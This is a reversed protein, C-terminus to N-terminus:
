KKKGKAPAKPAAAKKPVEHCVEAFLGYRRQTIRAALDPPPPAFRDPRTVPGFAKAGRELAAEHTSRLEADLDKGKFLAACAASDTFFYDHRETVLDTIIAALYERARAPTLPTLLRTHTAPKAPGNKYVLYVAFDQAPAHGAAALVAHTLFGRLYNEPCQVWNGASLYLTADFAANVPDTEGVLEVQLPGAPAAITFTLPPLGRAAGTAAAGFIVPAWGDSAVGLNAFQRRWDNQIAAHARRTAEAFIGTPMVGQLEMRDYRAEYAATAAADDLPGAWFSARLLAARHLAEPTLVEDRQAFPDGADDEDLRLIVKAWGQVPSELFTRLASLSLRLTPRAQGTETPAAPLCLLKALAPWAAADTGERLARIREAGGWYPPLPTLAGLLEERLRAVQAEGRAADHLPGPQAHRRLPVTTHLAAYQEESLYNRTLISRLEAVLSSPAREDGTLGDRCVWSIRLAERAALLGELFAYKDRERTSVDGAMRQVRRLDLPDNGDAGPFVSESLGLMFVVRFPVPAFPSVAVGDVLYHGRSRELSGLSETAAEYAIRYPVEEGTMDADALADLRELSREFLRRDEDDLPTLYTSVLRILYAAWEKLTRRRPARCDDADAMLSRALLMFRAAASQEDGTVDEVLYADDGARFVDDVGARAGAMWVGLNLRHLAQDWNYLDKRIYTGKLGHRDREFVIALREAWRMWRDADAEPFRATLCPHTLLRLLDGRGYNGFPLALLTAIAEVIRSEGGEGMESLTFPIGHMREFVAAIQLAYDARAAPPVLVAMDHFPVGAEAFAWIQEAVIEVERRLSPAATFHISPAGKGTVVAALEGQFPSLGLREGGITERLPPGVGPMLDPERTLIDRQLRTLLTEGGATPDTFHAHFNCETLQNLLRVNERGPRGWLRLAATDRLNDLAFPDELADLDGPALREGRRAFRAQAEALKWRSTDVDEWYEMCPNLAYIHLETMDGLRRFIQQFARGIYSLGFVHVAPPLTSPHLNFHSSAATDLWVDTLFKADSRADIKRLLAAQWAETAAAPKGTHRLAGKRWAAIWMDRSFTYELFLNALRDALAYRRREYADDDGAAYLYRRVPAFVPADDLAGLEAILLSRLEDRELIRLAPQAATVVERLFRRLFLTNWHGVAGMRDATRLKLFTEVQKGPIVITAPAFLRRWDAREAALNAALPELLAELRNAYHLSISM